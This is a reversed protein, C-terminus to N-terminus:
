RLLGNSDGEDLPNHGSTFTNVLNPIRADGQTRRVYKFSRSPRTLYYRGMLEDDGPILINSECGWYHATHEDEICFAYVDVIDQSSNTTPDYLSLHQARVALPPRNNGYFVMSRAFNVLPELDEKPVYLLTNMPLGMEMGQRDWSFVPKEFTIFKLESPKKQEEYCQTIVDLQLEPLVRNILFPYVCSYTAKTAESAPCLFEKDAPEASLVDKTVGHQSTHGEPTPRSV